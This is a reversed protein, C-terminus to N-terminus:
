DLLCTKPAISFCFLVFVCCKWATFLPKAATFGKAAAFSLKEVSFGAISFDEKEAESYCPFAEGSRPTEESSFMIFHM